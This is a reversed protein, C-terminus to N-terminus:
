EVTESDRRWKENVERVEDKDREFEKQMVDLEKM